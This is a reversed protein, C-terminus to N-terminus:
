DLAENIISIILIVVILIVPILITIKIIKKWNWRDKTVNYLYVTAIILFGFFLALGIDM